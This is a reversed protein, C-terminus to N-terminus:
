RLAQFLVYGLAQEVRLLMTLLQVRQWVETGLTALAAESSLVYWLGSVGVLGMAFGVPMELFFMLLLLGVIGILGTM